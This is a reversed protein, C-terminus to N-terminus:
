ASVFQNVLRKEIQAMYEFWFRVRTTTETTTRGFAENEVSGQVIIVNLLTIISAITSLDALNFEQEEPLGFETRIQGLIEAQKVTDIGLEAELELEPELEDREYGTANQFISFITETYNTMTNAPGKAGQTNMSPEPTSTTKAQSDLGVSALSAVEPRYEELVAHFNTGGFGFASVGARLPTSADHSTWSRAQSNVKLYGRSLPSNSPAEHYGASPPLRKSHLAMTTNILSAAGAARKLHGIM